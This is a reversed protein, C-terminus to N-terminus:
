PDPRRCAALHACARGAPGAGLGGTGGALAAEIVAPTAEHVVAIVEGTAPYIVDILAGGADDLYAGNVFHSAKPQARM